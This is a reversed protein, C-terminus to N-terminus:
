RIELTQRFYSLALDTNGLADQVRGLQPLIYQPVWNDKVQIANKYAAECHYLASDPQHMELYM